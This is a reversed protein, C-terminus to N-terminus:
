IHRVIDRLSALFSDEDSAAIQECLVSLNPASHGDYDQDEAHQAVVAQAYALPWHDRLRVMVHEEHEGFVDAVVEYARDTFSM